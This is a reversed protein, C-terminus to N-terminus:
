LSVTADMPLAKIISLNMSLASYTSNIWAVELNTTNPDMYEPDISDFYADEIYYSFIGQM